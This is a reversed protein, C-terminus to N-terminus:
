TRRSGNRQRGGNQQSGNSPKPPSALLRFNGEGLLDDLRSRMEPSAEVRHRASKVVVRSGDDLCLLLQLECNGPYGRVIERIKGLSDEGHVRQDVRIMVGRTYRSDLEDLPIM